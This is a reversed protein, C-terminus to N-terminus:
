NIALRWSYVIRVSQILLEFVIRIKYESFKIGSQDVVCEVRLACVRINVTSIYDEFRIM